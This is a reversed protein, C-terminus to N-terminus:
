ILPMRRSILSIPSISVFPLIDEAISYNSDVRASLSWLDRSVLVVRRHKEKDRKREDGERKM